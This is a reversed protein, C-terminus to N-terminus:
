RIGLLPTVGLLNSAKLMQYGYGSPEDGWSPEGAIVIQQDSDDPDDRKATDRPAGEQWFELFAALFRAPSDVQQERLWAYSAVVGAVDLDDAHGAVTVPRRAASDARRMARLRDLAASQMVADEEYMQDHVEKIRPWVRDLWRRAARRQSGTPQRPGKAIYCILDAGM